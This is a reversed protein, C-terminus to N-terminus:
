YKYFDLRNNGLLYLRNKEIRVMKIDEKQPLEIDHTEFTNLHYSQFKGDKYYYLLDHRIQFDILGKIPIIKFYNAYVDFVLIGLQPDNVYLWKGHELIFNPRLSQDILQSLDDSKLIINSRIEEEAINDVNEYAFSQRTTNDIKVIQYAQEDFVWINHDGSACIAAVRNIGVSKLDIERIFSLTRDLVIIYSFNPYLLLLELPNSVDVQTLKGYTTGSHTNLSMGESNIKTLENTTNIVYCNRLNDTTMIHARVDVTHILSFDKVMAYGLICFGFILSVPITTKTNM